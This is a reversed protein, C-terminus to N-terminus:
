ETEYISDIKLLEDRSLSELLDKPIYSLVRGTSREIVEGTNYDIIPSPLLRVKYKGEKDIDIKAVALPRPIKGRETKLITNYISEYNEKIKNDIEIFIDLLNSSIKTIDILNETSKQTFCVGKKGWEEILNKIIESM